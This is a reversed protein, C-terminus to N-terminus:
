LMGRDNFNIFADCDQIHIQVAQRQDLYDRVAASTTLATQIAAREQRHLLLCLNQRRNGDYAVAIPAANPQQTLHQQLTQWAQEAFDTPYNPLDCPTVLVWDQQCIALATALGALPGAFSGFRPDDSITSGYRSYRNANRNCSIIRERVVSPLRRSVHAILPLDQYDVLGKDAGQMRRGEGGALIIASLPPLEPNKDM